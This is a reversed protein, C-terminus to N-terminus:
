RGRGGRTSTTGADATSDSQGASGPDSSTAAATAGATGGTAGGAAAGGTATSEGAGGSAAAGPKSTGEEEPDQSTQNDLAARRESEAEPLGDPYQYKDLADIVSNRPGGERSEEYDRIAQLDIVYGQDEILIRLKRTIDSASQDEYNAIALHATAASM